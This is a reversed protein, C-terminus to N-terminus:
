DFVEQQLIYDEPTLTWPNPPQSWRGPWRPHHMPFFCDLEVASSEELGHPCEMMTFPTSHSEGLSAYYCGVPSVFASEDGQRLAEVISADPM